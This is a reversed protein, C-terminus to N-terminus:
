AAAGDPKRFWVGLQTLLRRAVDGPLVTQSTKELRMITAKPVVKHLLSLKIHGATLPNTFLQLDRIELGAAEALAPIEDAHLLFIHGDADPKFQVDEFVSPDAFTSFRPLRNRVYGGNPTTMFVHGGPRVLSAVRTLFEDPHAVHEIIETIVVADFDGEGLAFADGGRYRVTGREFKLEVYGALEERLDNWTVDYGREALALSFNGQAAAVDIIRGGRPVHAEVAEILKAFRTQYACVYGPARAQEGFFEMCDFAYATRWSAPWSADPVPKKM